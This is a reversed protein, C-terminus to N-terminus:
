GGKVQEVKELPVVLCSGKKYKGDMSYGGVDEDFEVIVAKLLGEVCTSINPITCVVRGPKNRFKLNKFLKNDTIRVRSGIIKNMIGLKREFYKRAINASIVTLGYHRVWSREISRDKKFLIHFNPLFWNGLDTVSETRRNDCRHLMANGSNGSFCIQEIVNSTRNRPVRSHNNTDVISLVQTNLNPACETLRIPYFIDWSHLMVPDGTTVGAFIETHSLARDAISILYKGLRIVPFARSLGILIDCGRRLSSGQPGTRPLARRLEASSNFLNLSEFPM